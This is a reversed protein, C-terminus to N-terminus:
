LFDIAQRVFQDYSRILALQLERKADVRLGYNLRIRDSRLNESKGEIRQGFSM